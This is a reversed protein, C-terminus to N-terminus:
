SLPSLARAVEPEGVVTSPRRAQVADGRAWAMSESAALARSKRQPPLLGVGGGVSRAGMSTRASTEDEAEDFSRPSLLWGGDSLSPSRATVGGGASLSVTECPVGPQKGVAVLMVM